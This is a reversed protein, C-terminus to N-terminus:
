GKATIQIVSVLRLSFPCWGEQGLSFFLRGPTCPRQLYACLALCREPSSFFRKRSRFLCATFPPSSAAPILSLVGILPTVRNRLLFSPALEARGPWVTLPRLDHFPPRLLNSLSELVFRLLGVLQSSPLPLRLFPLPVVFALFRWSSLRPPPPNCIENASALTPVFPTLYLFYSHRPHEGFFPRRNLCCLSSVHFLDGIWM